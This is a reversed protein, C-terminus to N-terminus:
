SLWLHLPYYSFSANLSRGTICAPGSVHTLSVFGGHFMMFLVPAQGATVVSGQAAILCIELKTYLLDVKSTRSWLLLNSFVTDWDCSPLNDVNGGVVCGCLCEHM